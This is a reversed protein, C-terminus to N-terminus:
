CWQELTAIKRPKIDEIMIRKELQLSAKKAKKSADRAKWDEAVYQWGRRICLAEVEKNHAYVVFKINDSMAHSCALEYQHILMDLDMFRQFHTMWASWGRPIGVLNLEEWRPAVNLDVWCRMGHEQFLRSLHRKKAIQWLARYYPQANSTSFNVEIFSPAKSEWVKAPREWLKRWHHGHEVATGLADFRSDDEWFTITNGILEKTRAVSGWQRPYDLYDGQMSLDLDAIGESNSSAFLCDPVNSM